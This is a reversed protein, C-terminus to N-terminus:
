YRRSIYDTVEALVIPIDALPDGSLNSPYRIDMDDHFHHPFNALSPHHPANDWRLVPKTTFLQYSYATEGAKLRLRIQFFCGKPLDCRIKYMLVVGADVEYEITRPNSVEPWSALMDLLDTALPLM